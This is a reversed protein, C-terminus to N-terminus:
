GPLKQERNHWVVCLMESCYCVRNIREEQQQQKSPASSCKPDKHLRKRLGPAPKAKVPPILRDKAQEAEQGEEEESSLDESM